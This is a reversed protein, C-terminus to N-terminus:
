FVTPKHFLCLSDSAKGSRKVRHRQRKADGSLSLTKHAARRYGKVKLRLRSVKCWKVHWHFSLTNTYTLTKPVTKEKTKIHTFAACFDERDGTSIM